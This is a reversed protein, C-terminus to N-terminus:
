SKPWSNNCLHPLTIWSVLLSCFTIFLPDPAFKRPAFHTYPVTSNGSWVKDPIFNKRKIAFGKYISKTEWAFGELWTPPIEEKGTSGRSAAGGMRGRFEQDKALVSWWVKYAKLDYRRKRNTWIANMAPVSLQWQTNTESGNPSSASFRFFRQDFDLFFRIASCM